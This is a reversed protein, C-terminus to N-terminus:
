YRLKPTTTKGKQSKKDKKKKDEKRGLRLSGSKSVLSVAAM